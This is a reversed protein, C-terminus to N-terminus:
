APELLLEILRLAIEKGRAGADMTPGVCSPCGQTCICGRILDGCSAILDLHRDYLLASFGVGGPYADFIFVTPDFSNFGGDGQSEAGPPFDGSESITRKGQIYSVFWSGSKDGISRDIDRQDSMLFIASLHQFAYALGSLGDVLDSRNYPLQDLRDQPITFWYSTTHMDVEPLNVDGYGVNEATYFKIKKYGVVKRVVQVEGQEVIVQNIKKDKFSDIVRVKTYTMADPYYDVDVKKVYAKRRELDLKDVHYQQSQAMYIAEDHVTTFAGIWDIEALVKHSGPSTTDVIVVNESNVSRLSVED